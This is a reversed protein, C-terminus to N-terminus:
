GYCSDPRGVAASAMWSSGVVVSRSSSGASGAVIICCSAVSIAVEVPNSQLPDRMEGLSQWEGTDMVAVIVMAASIM